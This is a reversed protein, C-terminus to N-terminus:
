CRIYCLNDRLNQVYWEPPPETCSSFSLGRIRLRPPNQGISCLNKLLTTATLGLINCLLVMSKRSVWAQFYNGARWFLSCLDEDYNVDFVNEEDVMGLLPYIYDRPDTCETGKFGDLLNWIRHEGSWSHKSGDKTLRISSYIYIPSQELAPFLGEVSPVLDLVALLVDNFDIQQQDNVIVM